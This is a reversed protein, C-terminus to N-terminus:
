GKLFEDATYLACFPIGEARFAEEAGELRDVITLALIINGGAERITKVAQMASGGTTTVDDIIVVSKGQFSEDKGLGEITLKDGHNKPKKRVFFTNIPRPTEHSAAAIAGAIPVAGMELGGVYDVQRSDLERIILKALWAAGDARLMTPKMNFYFNSERGSALTIKGRGFSRQKILEFLKARVDDVQAVGLRIPSVRSQEADKRLPQM